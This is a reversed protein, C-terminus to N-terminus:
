RKPKAYSKIKLYVKLVSALEETAEEIPANENWIRGIGDAILAQIEYSDFNYGASMRPIEDFFVKDGPNTRDLSKEASSKRIPIGYHAQGIFDQVEESLIFSLFEVAMDKDKCERRVCILDTAQTTGGVTGPVTPMPVANWKRVGLPKFFTCVERPELMMALKGEAFREWSTKKGEKASKLGLTNQLEKLLQLGARTQETNIRVPDPSGPELLSGGTNFIFSMWIPTSDSFNFVETGDLHKKLKKVSTIFENWTWKEHPEPCSFKKFIEPNYIIIRPSFIFPVGFLRADERFSRFPKEYFCSPDPFAEKFLPTMDLFDNRRTMVAATTGFEIMGRKFKRSPRLDPFREQLLKEFAPIWPLDTRYFVLNSEIVCQEWGQKIYAGSRPLTELIGDRELTKVASQAMLLSMGTRAAIERAGPLRDGAKFLGQELMDLINERATAIKNKM